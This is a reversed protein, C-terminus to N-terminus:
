TTDDAHEAALLLEETRKYEDGKEYLRGNPNEDCRHFVAAEVMWNRWSLPFKEDMLDISHERVEEVAPSTWDKGKMYFDGEDKMYIYLGDHLTHFVKYGGELLDVTWDRLMDAGSGQIMHNFTQRPNQLEWDVRLPWGHYVSKVCKLSAFGKVAEGRFEEFVSFKEQLHNIIGVAAQPTVGLKNAMTNSGVGYFYPLTVGNKYISRMIDKKSLPVYGEATCISVIMSYLDIDATLSAQLEPDQSFEACLHPEQAKIDLSVTFYGEPPIVSARMISGQALPSNKPSFRGTKQGCLVEGHYQLAAFERQAKRKLCILYVVTATTRTEPDLNKDVTEKLNFENDLDNPDLIAKFYDQHFGRQIGNTAYQARSSVRFSHDNRELWEQTKVMDQTIKGTKKNVAYFDIGRKKAVRLLRDRDMITQIYPLDICIPTQTLHYWPLAYTQMKEAVQLREPDGSLIRLYRDALKGVTYADERCHKCVAETAEWLDALVDKPLMKKMGHGLDQFSRSQLKPSASESFGKPDRHSSHNHELGALINCDMSGETFTIYPATLGIDDYAIYYFGRGNLVVPEMGPDIRTYRHTRVNYAYAVVLEHEPNWEADIGYVDGNM